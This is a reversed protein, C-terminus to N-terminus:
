YPGKGPIVGRVGGTPDDVDGSRRPIVHVHVHSVTQGASEGVNVGVNYGDPSFEDDILKKLDLILHFAAQIEDESLDFFSSVHRRPIALCHGPTVPNADRVAYALDNELIIEPRGPPCFPCSKEADSNMSLRIAYYRNIEFICHAATQGLPM